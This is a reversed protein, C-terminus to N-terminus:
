RRVRRDFALFGQVDILTGGDSGSAGATPVSDAVKPLGDWILEVEERTLLDEDILETVESWRGFM